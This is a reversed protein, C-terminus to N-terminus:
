TLKTHVPPFWNTKDISSSIIWVLEHHIAVVVRGQLCQMCIRFGTLENIASISFWIQLFSFVAFCM